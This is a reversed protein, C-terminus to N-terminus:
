GEKKGKKRIRELKRRKLWGSTCPGKEEQVKEHEQFNNMDQDIHFQEFPIVSVTRHKRSKKM